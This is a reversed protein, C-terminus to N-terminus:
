KGEDPDSNETLAAVRKLWIPTCTECLDVIKTQHTPFYPPLMSISGQGGAGGMAGQNQMM